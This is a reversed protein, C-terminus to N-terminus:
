AIDRTTDIKIREGLTVKIRGIPTMGRIKPISLITEHREGSVHSEVDFIVDSANLVLNELDKPHTGKYVFLFTISDTQLTVDRIFDILKRIKEVKPSADLYFSFADIIINVPEGGKQINELVRGLMYKAEDAAIFKIYETALGLEKMVRTVDEPRKTTTIYYTKRTSSFQYLFM